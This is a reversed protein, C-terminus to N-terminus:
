LELDWIESVLEVGIDSNPWEKVIKFGHREYIRRAPLLISQTWLTVKKYRCERAFRLCEEVLRNGIGMGRCDPEVYLMRLKAVGEEASKVLFISGVVEGAREAIWCRERSPDFEEIFQGAIKAVIAEFREDWGYERAYLLAQRLVVTGMDGVRHTRLIFPEKSSESPGQLLRQITEMAGTLQSREPASLPALMEEVGRNSRANLDEFEAKGKATLSLLSQRADEKSPRRSILGLRKFRALIRSLYGADLGLDAALATATTQERQALEYLVRGDTLSFSTNLMGEDLVGIQRTYFRNFARVSGIVSDATAPTRTM